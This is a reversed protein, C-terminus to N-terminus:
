SGKIIKDVEDYLAGTFHNVVKRDTDKKSAEEMAERWEKENAYPTPYYREGIKLRWEGWKAMRKTNEAYFKIDYKEILERMPKELEPHRLYEIFTCYARIPQKGKHDANYDHILKFAHEAGDLLAEASFLPNGRGYLTIARGTHVGLLHCRACVCIARVFETEGLRWNVRYLEHGHRHRLNEPKEGCIECTDKAWLYCVKRTRNWWVDGLVVRPAVGHLPKPINPMTILCRLDKEDQPEWKIVQKIDYEPFDEILKKIANKAM